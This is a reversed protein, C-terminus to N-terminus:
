CSTAPVAASNVVEPKSPLITKQVRSWNLLAIAPRSILQAGLFLLNPASLPLKPHPARSTHQRAHNPARAARLERACYPWGRLHISEYTGFRPRALGVVGTARDARRLARPLM